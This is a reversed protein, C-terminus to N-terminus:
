QENSIGRMTSRLSDAIRNVYENRADESHFWQIGKAALAAVFSELIEAELEEKAKYDDSPVRNEKISKKDTDIVIKM